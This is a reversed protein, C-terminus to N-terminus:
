YEVEVCDDYQDMTEEVKDVGLHRRIDIAGSGWITRLDSWRSDRAGFNLVREGVGFIM